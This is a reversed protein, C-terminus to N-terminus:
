WNVEDLDGQDLILDLNILNKYFHTTAQLDYVPLFVIQKQIDM